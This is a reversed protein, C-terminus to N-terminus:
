ARRRETYFWRRLADSITSIVTEEPKPLEVVRRVPREVMPPPILTIIREEQQAVAKFEPLQLTEDIMARMHLLMQRTEKARFMERAKRLARRDCMGQWPLPLDIEKAPAINAGRMKLKVHEVATSSVGFFEAISKPNDGRLLMGKVIAIDRSTLM